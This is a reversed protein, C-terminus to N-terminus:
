LDIALHWTADKPHESITPAIACDSEPLIALLHQARHEYYAKNRARAWEAYANGANPEARARLWCKTACELFAEFLHSTVIM